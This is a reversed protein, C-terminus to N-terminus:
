TNFWQGRAILPLIGKRHVFVVESRFAMDKGQLGSQYRSIRFTYPINRRPMSVMLNMLGCNPKGTDREKNLFSKLKLGEKVLPPPPPRDSGGFTKRRYSKSYFLRYVAFKAYHLKLLICM